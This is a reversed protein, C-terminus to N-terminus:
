RYDVGAANATHIVNLEYIFLLIKSGVFKFSM